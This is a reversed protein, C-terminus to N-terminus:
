MTVTSPQYLLAIATEDLLLDSAQTLDKWRKTADNADTTKSKAILEDYQTNGWKGFTYTSETTFLNM